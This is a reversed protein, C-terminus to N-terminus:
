KEKGQFTYRLRWWKAGTPRVVLLLGRQDSLRYEKEKPRAQRVAIDTLLM